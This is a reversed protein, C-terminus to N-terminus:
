MVEFAEFRELLKTGRGSEKCWLEMSHPNLFIMGGEVFETPRREKNYDKSSRAQALHIAEEARLRETDFNEVMDRAELEVVEDDKWVEPGLRAIFASDSM